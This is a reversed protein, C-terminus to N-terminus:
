GWWVVQFSSLDEHLTPNSGCHNDNRDTDTAYNKIRRSSIYIELKYVYEQLFDSIFVIQATYYVHEWLLGIIFAGKNQRLGLLFPGELREYDFSLFGLYNYPM